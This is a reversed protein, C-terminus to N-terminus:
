VGGTATRHRLRDVDAHGAEVEGGAEEGVGGGAGAGRDEVHQRQVGVEELGAPAALGGPDREAIEVQVEGVLVGGAVGAGAVEEEMQAAQALGLDEEGVPGGEEGALHALEGAAVEGGDLVTE